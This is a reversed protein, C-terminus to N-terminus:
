KFAQNSLLFFVVWEKEENEMTKKEEKRLLKGM